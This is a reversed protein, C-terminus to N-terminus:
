FVWFGLPNHPGRYFHQWSYTAKRKKLWDANAPESAPGIPLAAEQSFYALGSVAAHTTVVLFVRLIQQGMKFVKHIKETKYGLRSISQGHQLGMSLHFLILPFLFLHFAVKWKSLLEMKTHKISVPFPNIRFVLHRSIVPLFSPGASCCRFWLM